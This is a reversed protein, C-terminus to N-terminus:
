DKLPQDDVIERSDDEGGVRMDTDCARSDDEGGVRSVDDSSSAKVNTPKDIM